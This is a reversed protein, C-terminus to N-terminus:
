YRWQLLAGHSEAIARARWVAAQGGGSTPVVDLPQQPLHVPSGSFYAIVVGQDNREAWSLAEERTALLTLPQLLRGPLDYEGQYPGLVAVPIGASQWAHVRGASDDVIFYDDLWFAFELNLAVILVVPLLALQKIRAELQLPALQSLLYTGGLLVVGPVLSIGNLWIPLGEPDVWDQWIPDIHAFPIINLLFLAFGLFLIVLGPVFAHFDKPKTYHAVVLRASLLAFAPTLVVAMSLEGSFIWAFLAAALMMLCLRMEAEGLRIAHRFIARWLTRWLLWPYLLVGVFVAGGAATIAFERFTANGKWEFGIERGKSLPLVDEISYPGALGYVMGMWICALILALAIGAYWRGLMPWSQHPRALPVILSLLLLSPLTDGGSFASGALALSVLSWGGRYEQCWAKVLGAIGLLFFFIAPLAALTLSTLVVFGLSGFLIGAAIEAILPRGPWLRRGILVLLAICALGYLPAVLRASWEGVGLAAWVSHITAILVPSPSKFSVEGAQWQWWAMSLLQNEEALMPPRFLLTSLLLIMWIFGPWMMSRALALRGQGWQRTQPSNIKFPEASETTM